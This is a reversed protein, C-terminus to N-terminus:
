LSSKVGPVITFSKTSLLPQIIIKLVLRTLIRYDVCVCITGQKNKVPVLNSVWNTLAVPYVFGVKLLKEVKLKIVIAKQPHVPRIRQQIPKANPYTKIEHVVIDLDIGSM